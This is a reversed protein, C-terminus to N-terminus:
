IFFQQYFLLSFLRFNGFHASKPSRDENKPLGLCDSKDFKKFTLIHLLDKKCIKVFIDHFINFVKSLYKQFTM